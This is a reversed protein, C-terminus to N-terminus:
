FKSEGINATSKEHSLFEYHAESHYAVLQRYEYCGQFTLLSARPQARAARGWEARSTM